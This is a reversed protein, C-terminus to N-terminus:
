TYMISNILWPKSGTVFHSAGQRLCTHIRHKFECLIWFFRIWYTLKGQCYGSMPAHSKGIWEHYDGVSQIYYLGPFFFMLLPNPVVAWNSNEMIVRQYNLLKSNFIAMSIYNIYGNIAHHHDMTKQINVLPYGLIERCFVGSKAAAIM